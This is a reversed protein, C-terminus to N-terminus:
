VEIWEKLTAIERRLNEIWYGLEISISGQYDMDRLRQICSRLDINGDLMGLHEDYNGHNNHLHINNIIDFCSEIADAMTGYRRYPIDQTYHPINAHGTDFTMAVPLGDGKLSRILNSCSEIDHLAEANEISLVVGSGNCYSALRGLAKLHRRPERDLAIGETSGRAHVVVYDLELRKAIEISMRLQEMAEERVRVNVAIINLNYFPLHGGRRQFHTVFNELERLESEEYEWPYPAFQRGVGELVLEISTLKFESSIGLAQDRAESRSKGEHDICNMSIGLHMGSEGHQYDGRHRTYLFVTM